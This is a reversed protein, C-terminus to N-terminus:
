ENFGLIRNWDNKTLNEFSGVRIDADKLGETGIGLAKFGAAKIAQIGAEADEVGLCEEPKLGFFSMADLFIDPHPKGRVKSPDVVYDFRKKIGLAELLAPGNKSASGLAIFVRKHKLYDLVDLTGPLLDQANFRAISQLYHSNKEETLEVKRELPVRIGYADLLVQLSDMRSVGKTKIELAPDLDINFHKKFLSIWANFHACTTSTLVGDLDFVVLKVM